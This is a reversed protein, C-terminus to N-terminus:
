TIEARGPIGCLESRLVTLLEQENSNIFFHDGDLIRMTFRRNTQVRWADMRGDQTEEDETAGIATIAFPLPEDADYKYTEILEFDARLGPMLLTLLESNTLVESPTGKHEALSALFAEDNKQYNPPDTDPIQPARRAAVFLCQPLPRRHRRLWKAIEFSLIAGMSYGFFAFQKNLLPTMSHAIAPVLDSLYTFPKELIRNARGPLQLAHVEVCEQLAVHWSRFISANGGAYPFCFLKVRARPNPKVVSWWLNKQTCLAM